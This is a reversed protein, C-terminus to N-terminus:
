KRFKNLLNNEKMFTDLPQNKEEEQLYVCLSINEDVKKIREHKHPKIYYKKM